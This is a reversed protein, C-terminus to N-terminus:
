PKKYGVGQAENLQRMVYWQQFIGIVSSMTWYLVLGSALNKFIFIFIAPMLYIMMKQKPDTITMKQQFFMFVGMLIPLIGFGLLYQGSSDPQSLDTLWLMFPAGRLEITNSLVSYLAFFIPMQILMPLCSGFPNVGHEKYAKMTEQNLRAPDNKFKERIEQLVPNINRMKHMSKFNKATLPWFIGQIIFAFLIIVFGYNPIVKHLNTFVWLIAVAFPRIIKWGMEVLSTLNKDMAKLKDYDLPGAYVSFDLSTEGELNEYMMGVGYLDWKIINAQADAKSTQGGMVIVQEAPKDNAIVVATFYKTRTAVWDVPGTAVKKLKGDKLGKFYDFEGGMGFFGGLAGKDQNMDSETPEMPAFWGLTLGQTFGLKQPQSLHLNLDFLYNNYHFTYRKTVSAGDPATYAFTVNAVSDSESLTVDTSDGAFIYSNLAAMQEDNGLTLAGHNAWSPEDYQGLLAAPQGDHRNYKKLTVQRVTGGKSSLVVRLNQTDVTILREPQTLSAALAASDVAGITAPAQTTTEASIIARTTDTTTERSVTTTDPAPPLPAQPFFLNWLPWWLLLIAMIVLFGLISKKDM